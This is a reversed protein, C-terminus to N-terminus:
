RNTAPETQLTYYIAIGNLRYKGEIFQKKLKDSVVIGNAGLSAAQTKLDIICQGRASDETNDRSSVEARLKAIKIYNEPFKSFWKVEDTSVPDRADGLMKPYGACGSIGILLLLLIAVRYIRSNMEIGM